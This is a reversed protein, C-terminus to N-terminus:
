KKRHKPNRNENDSSSSSDDGKKYFRKIANESLELAKKNHHNINKGAYLTLQKDNTIRAVKHMFQRVANRTNNEMEPSLKINRDRKKGVSAVLQKYQDTIDEVSVHNPLSETPVLGSGGGQFVLNNNRIGIVVNENVKPRPPTRVKSVGSQVTSHHHAHIRNSAGPVVQNNQNNPVVQNNQNNPVVQNNQHHPVVQNNHHPMPNSPNIPAHM